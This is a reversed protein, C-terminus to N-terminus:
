TWEHLPLPSHLSFPLSSLSSLFPYLSIPSLHVSPSSLPLSPSPFCAKFVFSSVCMLVSGGETGRERERLRECVSKEKVCMNTGNGRHQRVPSYPACSPMKAVENILWWQKNSCVLQFSPHTHVSTRINPLNQSVLAAAAAAVAVVTGWAENHLLLSCSLPSPLSCSVPLQTSSKECWKLWWGCMALAYSDPAVALLHRLYPPPSRIVPHCAREGRNWTIQAALRRIHFLWATSTLKANETSKLSDTTRQKEPEQTHM